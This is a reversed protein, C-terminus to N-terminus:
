QVNCGGKKEGVEAGHPQVGVDKNQMENPDSSQELSNADDILDGTDNGERLKENRSGTGNYKINESYEHLHSQHVHANEVSISHYVLIEQKHLYVSVIMTLLAEPWITGFQKSMYRLRRDTFTMRRMEVSGYWDGMFLAASSPEQLLSQQLKLMSFLKKQPESPYFTPDQMKKLRDRRMALIDEPERVHGNLANTTSSNSLPHRGKREDKAFNPPPWIRVKDNFENTEFVIIDKDRFFSKTLYM